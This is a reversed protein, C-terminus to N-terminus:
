ETALMSLRAQAYENDLTLLRALRNENLCSLSKVRLLAGYLSVFIKSAAGAVVDNFVNPSEYTASAFKVVSKYDRCAPSSIYDFFDDESSNFLVAVSEVTARKMLLHEMAGELTMTNGFSGFYQDLAAIIKPDSPEDWLDGRDGLSRSIDLAVFFSDVVEDARGDMGLERYFRVVSGLQDVSMYNLYASVADDFLGVVEDQSRSLDNHYAHWAMHYQYEADAAASQNLAADVVARAVDSDLYGRSVLNIIERDFESTRFYGYSELSRAQEDKEAAAKQDTESADHTIYSVEVGQFRELDALSIPAEAEHYRALVALPIVSRIDKWLNSNGSDVISLMYQYYHRMKRILRVNNVGLNVINDIFAKEGPENPNFILQAAQASTPNYEVEFSFVKERYSKFEGEAKALWEENLILIVKCNKKDVLWSIMGLVEADSLRTSKREFDDICILADKIAFSQYSDVVRGAGRLGGLLKMNRRFFGQSSKVIVDASRFGDTKIASDKAVFNEYVAQKLEQLSGVGFLSVYSYYPKGLQEKKGKLVSDWLHTKGVGWKGKLVIASCEPDVAFKELVDKVVAM